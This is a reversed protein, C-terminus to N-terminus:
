THGKGDDTQGRMLILNDDKLNYLMCLESHDTISGVHFGLGGLTARVNKFETSTEAKTTDTRYKYVAKSRFGLERLLRGIAEHTEDLCSWCYLGITHRNIAEWNLDFYERKNHRLEISEPFRFYSMAIGAATSGCGSLGNSCYGGYIGEQGWDVTKHSITDDVLVTQESKIEYLTHSDGGATSLTRAPANAVYDIAMKMCISFGPNDSEELSTFRGSEIVAIVPETSRKASIVAFGANDKYNIIYLLTDVSSSRSTSPDVIYRIGGNSLDIERNVSARSSNSEVFMGVAEEAIKVAEDLGRDLSSTTYFVTTKESKPLPSSDPEVLSVCDGCSVMLLFSLSLPHFTIKM